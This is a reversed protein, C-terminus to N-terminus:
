PLPGIRSLLSRRGRLAAIIAELGLGGVLAAAAVAGLPTSPWAAPLIAVGVALFLAGVIADAKRSGGTENM